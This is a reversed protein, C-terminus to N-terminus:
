LHHSGRHGEVSACLLAQQLQEQRWCIPALDTWQWGTLCASSHLAEPSGQVWGACLGRHWAIRRAKRTLEYHNPFHNVIQHAELRFQSDPSFLQKISTVSAWYIEWDDEADAQTTCILALQM